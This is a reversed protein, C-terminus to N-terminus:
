KNQKLTKRIEALKEIRKDVLSSAASFNNKVPKGAPEESFKAFKASFDKKFEEIDEKIKVIDEVLPAIVQVIESVIDQTIEEVVEEEMEEKEEKEMKEKDKDEDESMEEEEKELDESVVESVEVIVGAADVTLLLGDELQHQGEPAPVLGDEAVVSLQAGVEFAPNAEVQTGDVLSKQESFKEIGLMLKIKKIADQANM